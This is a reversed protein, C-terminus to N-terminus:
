QIYYKQKHNRFEVDRLRFSFGWGGKWQEVKILIHNRGKEMDLPIEDEDPILSRKVHVQHVKQGNCWVVAGDNSGLLATVRQKEPSDITCYAYAVGRIPPHYIDTFDVEVPDPSDYKDWMYRTGGPGEIWQGPYPRAESEGGMDGLFDISSEGFSDLPFRGAILFYQFYQGEKSRIDLRVADPPPLWAGEGFRDVAEKLLHVQEGFALNRERYGELARDRWHERSEMDWLAGFDDALMKHRRALEELITLSTGLENSAERRNQLQVASARNYADAAELLKERTEALFRYQSITFRIFALDENYFPVSQDALISWASDAWKGVDKWSNLDFTIKEGREPVLTKWMVGSNMEYTPGLDTLHNLTHLVRPVSQDPDGYVGLSFRRDFDDLPDRNPRWSQEANYAVGYWVHSFFHEGGDDWVTCYVGITGKEYGENIFNRINITTMRYDPILRNSNLVGPTVTFEFGANRLPDIFHAFSESAGYDWAGLIIRKPIMELIERHELIIDGWVISRKGLRNLITDIRMVHDAYIRAVGLSDAAGKLGGRSLDWAEDCNPTFFGSSFAPAMETYIDGLFGISAPDLPDLMRETAGLHRYQPHSLINEFHGLSQFNGVLKMHYRAAYESLESFEEVSIGGTSPAFDPYTETEVVHEIYFSMHNIKLEAYRRVQQRLYEGTPIPGRSIDDMVCRFAISPWDRVTMRPLEQPVPYGRLLQKLTQVGYFVGADTNATIYIQDADIKLLYGEEGLEDGPIIGERGTLRRLSRDNSPIGILITANGPPGGILESGNRAHFAGTLQGTILGATEEGVGALHLTLSEGRCGFHGTEVEVEQPYPVVPIRDGPMAEGVNLFLLLLGAATILVSIRKTNKM